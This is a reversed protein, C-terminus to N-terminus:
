PKEGLVQELVKVPFQRGIVSAVRMTQKVDEPQRDIRALLLGQQNDPIEIHELNEGAVWDGNEKIIAGRDILMRIVEEVYFPNGDSKRLILDRSKPSLAEVELLNAVMQRSETENLAQLSIETLSGGLIERAATALRWGPTDREARMVLCFLLPSSSAIPLLKTLLEVSSPDAWHLDELILILPRVATIGVLLRRIAFLYRTQLAQPDLSQVEELADGQLNLSLLHGLYPYLEHFESSTDTKGFYKELFTLLALHTEPESASDSVGILSYILDVILHYALGLGYSLCRGEVWHSAPQSTETLVATKWEIILRTKGMGPEGTILAARGLGAHVAECLNLLSALEAARGVMPSELGALGRLRGPDTSSECVQYVRVPEPRDKVEILGLDVCEFIPAIFRYTYESALVSMSHAAFKIRAALNVVGGVPTFEYKLDGSLPGIVVPGTNLCARVAFDISYERQVEDAYNKAIDIIDLAARVARIPDDEHAVPAGFFAVLADGLLRAITGEYLYAAQAFRDYATTMITTWTEDGVEEALATSNVVDVHLVTVIRREGSLHAAARVKEALPAPAAATLRDFHAEDDATRSRVPQGCHMCFRANPLLEAQCNSCNQILAAGCHLCFRAETPNNTQCHPCIM